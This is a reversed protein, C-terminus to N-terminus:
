NKETGESDGIKFSNLKMADRYIEKLSSASSTALEEMDNETFVPNGDVDCLSLIMILAFFDGGTIEDKQLKERAEIIKDSTDINWQVLFVEEGGLTIATKKPRMFELIKSKDM